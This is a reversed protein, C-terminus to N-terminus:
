SGARHPHREALLGPPGMTRSEFHHAISRRHGDIGSRHHDHDHDPAGRRRRPPRVPPRLPPATPTTPAPPNVSFQTGTVVTVQAGPAVKAPNFAMIVAGTM